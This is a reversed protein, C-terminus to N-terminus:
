GILGLLMQFISYIWHHFYGKSLTKKIYRANRNQWNINNVTDICYGTTFMEAIGFHADDDM